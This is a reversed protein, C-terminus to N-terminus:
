VDKREVREPNEPRRERRREEKSKRDGVRSSEARVRVRWGKESLGHILGGTALRTDFIQVDVALVDSPGVGVRAEIVGAVRVTVTDGASSGSPLPVVVPSESRGAGSVAVSASEDVVPRSLSPAPALGALSADHILGEFPNKGNLARRRQSGRDARREALPRRQRSASRCKASNSKSATPRQVM